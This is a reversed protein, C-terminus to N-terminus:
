PKPNSIGSHRPVMFSQGAAVEMVIVDRNKHGSGLKVMSDMGCHGKGLKQDARTALHCDRQDLLSLCRDHM